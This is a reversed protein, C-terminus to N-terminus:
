LAGRMPPESCHVFRLAGCPDRRGVHRRPFVLVLFPLFIMAM